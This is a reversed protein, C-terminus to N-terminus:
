GVSGSLSGMGNSKRHEIGTSINNKRGEKGLDVQFVGIWGALCLELSGEETFSEKGGRHSLLINRIAVM